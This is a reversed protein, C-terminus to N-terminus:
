PGLVKRGGEGRLAMGIEELSPAELLFDTGARGIEGPGHADSSRLRPPLPGPGSEIGAPEPSDSAVEVADLGLGPPIFGLQSVVSFSPRDIHAAIALGGRRHVLEVVKGLSLRTAAMLFRRCFGRVGDRDDVIVQERVFPAAAPLAPLGRYVEAQVALADKVAAFLGLVHVEEASAIELGPLVTLGTGRAARLTAAANAASNHDTVAVIDLGLELARSVLFRPYVGLDGCPSLCTHIHLDTRFRRLAM